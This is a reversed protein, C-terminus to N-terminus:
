PNLRSKLTSLYSTMSHAGIRDTIFKWAVDVGGGTFVGGIAHSAVNKWFSGEEFQGLGVLSQCHDFENAILSLTPLQPVPDHPDVYRFIKGKLNKDFAAVADKNGIMPGGFTYIQHVSVFKRTFLWGALLALAGGLSHGTIWLPRESTKLEETTAEYVGDWIEALANIFGQHFRAGVSAAIFDTGLRGTPVILLNMADTLLWDKLGDITTPGETGRFALVIHRDNTLVYCQTNDHSILRADMGLTERFKDKAEAETYYAIDSATGLFNANRWDGFEDEFLELPM